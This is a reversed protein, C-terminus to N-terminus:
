IYEENKSLIGHEIMYDIWQKSNRYVEKNTKYAPYPQLFNEDLIDIKCEKTKKNISFNITVPYNKCVSKCFYWYKKCYDTFGIERMQKKELINAKM